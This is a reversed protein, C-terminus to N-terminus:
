NKILKKLKTLNMWIKLPFFNKGKIKKVNKNNKKAFNYVSQKKGGVNIIGNQNLLKPLIKAFEDHFMFNTIVDTFAKQHIFPRECMILRLILSNKYMMVACEGGLKSWAYNNIPKIPDDEKYNGKVGEYVYGTSFYVLKIGLKECIKVVNCTGIINADISKSIYKDHLSMPRSIAAAHILYNIKNKVIYNEISNLKLINLQKKNPFYINEKFLNNKLVNAFRGEGGTIAINKIKYNM